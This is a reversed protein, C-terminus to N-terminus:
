FAFQRYCNSSWKQGLIHVRRPCILQVFRWTGAGIFFSEPVTMTDRLVVRHVVVIENEGNRAIRNRDLAQCVRYGTFDLVPLWTVPLGVVCSSVSSRLM